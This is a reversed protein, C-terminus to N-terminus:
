LIRGEEYIKQDRRNSIWANVGHTVGHQQLLIVTVVAGLESELGLVRATLGSRSNYDPEILVRNPDRLAANAQAPTVSHKEVIYAGRHLWDAEEFSM